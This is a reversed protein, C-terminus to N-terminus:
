LVQNLSVHTSLGPQANQDVAGSASYGNNAAQQERVAQAITEMLRTNADMASKLSRANVMTARDLREASEKLRTRKSEALGDFVHPIETVEGILRQYVKAVAEKDAQLVTIGGVEMKRVLESEQDLLDALRGTVDILKEAREEASMTATM